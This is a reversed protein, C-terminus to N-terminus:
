LFMLITFADCMKEVVTDILNTVHKIGVKNMQNM